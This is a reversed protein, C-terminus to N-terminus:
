EPGGLVIGVTCAYIYYFLNMDDEQCHQQEPNHRWVYGQLHLCYTEGFCQYIGVLRCRKVHWLLM